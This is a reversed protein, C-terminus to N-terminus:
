KTPVLEVKATGAFIYKLQMLSYPTDLSKLCMLGVAGDRSMLVLQRFDYTNGSENNRNEETLVGTGAPVPKFEFINGESVTVKEFEPFVEKSVDLACLGAGLTKREMITAGNVIKGHEIWNTPDKVLQMFLPANTVTLRITFDGQDSLVVASPNNSAAESSAAMLMLLFVMIIKNM